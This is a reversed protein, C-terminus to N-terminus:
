AAREPDFLVTQAPTSESAAGATETSVLACPETPQPTADALGLDAARLRSVTAYSVGAQEVIEATKVGTAVLGEALALRDAASLRWRRDLRRLHRALHGLDRATLQLELGTEYVLEVGFREAHRVYAELTSPGNLRSRKAKPM